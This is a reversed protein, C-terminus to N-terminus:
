DGSSPRKSVATETITRAEGTQERPKHKKLGVSVLTLVVIMAVIEIPGFASYLNQAILSWNKGALYGVYILIVDWAVIGIASYALFKLINMKAAGAPFAVLTRILPVFRALLVVISGYKAFWRESTLLHKEHLRIARGYRLVVTRGLYYGIAFDIMTGILSGLSAVVVATVFNMTGLYVLYGTLPLVVESPIPLTASELTMLAFVGTYGTRNLFSVVFSFLIQFLPIM